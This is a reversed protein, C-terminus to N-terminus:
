ECEDCHCRDCESDKCKSWSDEQTKWNVDYESHVNNKSLYDPFTDTQKASVVVNFIGSEEIAERLYRECDDQNNAQIFMTGTIQIEYGNMKAGSGQRTPRYM